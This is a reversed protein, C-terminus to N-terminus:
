VAHLDVALYLEGAPFSRLRNLSAVAATWGRWLLLLLLLLCSSSDRGPGQWTGAGQTQM